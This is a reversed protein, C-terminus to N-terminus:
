IAALRLDAWTFLSIDSPSDSEVVLVVLRIGQVDIDLRRSAGFGELLDSDWLLNGDGYVRFTGAPTAADEPDPDAIAALGTLRRYAMELPFSIQSSGLDTTPQAWLAAPFVHGDIQVSRVLQADGLLVSLTELPELDTLRKSPAATSDSFESADVDDTAISDPADVTQAIETTEALDALANTDPVSEEETSEPEAPETEESPPAHVPQDSREDEPVADATEQEVPPGEVVQVGADHLSFYFYFGLGVMALMGVCLVLIVVVAIMTSTAESSNSERPYRAM